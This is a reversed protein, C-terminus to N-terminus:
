DQTMSIRGAQFASPSTTRVIDGVKQATESGHALFLALRSQVAPFTAIRYATAAPVGHEVLIGFAMSGLSAIDLNAGRNAAREVWKRAQMLGAERSLLDRVEAPVDPHQLISERITSAAKAKAAAEIDNRIGVRGTEPKAGKAYFNELETYTGKKLAQADSLKIQGNNNFAHNIYETKVRDIVNYYKQPNPRNKFELKLNDLSNTITNIDISKGQTSLVDLTNQIKSDIDKVAINIKERTWKGLPLEENRVLTNIVKARDEQRLSGPPIKMARAYIEEPLGLKSAIKRAESLLKTPVTIPNAIEGVKTVIGGTRALGGAKLAAGTGGLLTSVDMVVRAPHEALTTKINELGGYAESFEKGIAQPYRKSAGVELSGVSEPLKEGLIAESGMIALGKATNIAAGATRIPHRVAEYIPVAVDSILSSPINTIGKKVTEEWTRKEIGQVGPVLGRNKAEEFIAKKDEPLIGRNYAEQYVEWNPM